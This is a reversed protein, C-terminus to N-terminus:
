STRILVRRSEVPADPRLQYLAWTRNRYIPRAIGPMQTGRGVVAFFSRYKDAGPVSNPPRDGAIVRHNIALRRTLATADLWLSSYVWGGLYLQRKALSPYVFGEDPQGGFDTFILADPPTSSAVRRWM